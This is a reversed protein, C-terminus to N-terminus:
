GIALYPWLYAGAPADTVNVTWGDANMNILDIDFDAGGAGLLGYIGDNDVVHGTDTNSAAGDSVFRTFISAAKPQRAMAAMGFLTGSSPVAATTKESGCLMVLRPKFGVGTKSAGGTGAPLAWTGVKARGGNALKLAIYGAAGAAADSTVTFGTASRTVNAKFNFANATTSISAISCDTAVFTRYLRTAGTDSRVGSCAEALTGLNDWAAFGQIARFGTFITDSFAGDSFYFIIADPQWGLAVTAGAGTVPTVTGVKVTLDSGGLVIAAQQVAAGWANGHNVRVGNTLFSSFASEANIATTTWLMVQDTVGVDRDTGSGAVNDASYTGCAFQNTGDAAGLGILADIVGSSKLVTSVGAQFMALKPTGGGYASATIDQTGTGVSTTFPIVAAALAAGTDGTSGLSGSGFSSTFLNM